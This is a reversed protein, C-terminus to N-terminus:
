KSLLQSVKGWETKDFDSKLDWGDFTQGIKKCNLCQLRDESLKLVRHGDFSIRTKVSRVESGAFSVTGDDAVTSYVGSTM